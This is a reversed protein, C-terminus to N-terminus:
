KLHSSALLQDLKRIDVGKDLYIKIHGANIWLDIEANNSLSGANESSWMTVSSYPLSYIKIKKGTLGQTDRIMLRKNTFIATIIAADKITKYAAIAEEEPVLLNSVDDPVPCESTFTWEITNSTELM